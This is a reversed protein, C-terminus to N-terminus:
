RGQWGPKRDGLETIAYDHPERDARLLRVWEDDLDTEDAREFRWRPNEGKEFHGGTFTALKCWGGFPGRYYLDDGQWRSALRYCYDDPHWQWDHFPFLRLTVYRGDYRFPRPPSYFRGPPANEEVEDITWPPLVWVGVAEPREVPSYEPALPGLAATFLLSAVLSLAAWARM